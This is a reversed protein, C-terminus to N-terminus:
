NEKYVVPNGKFSVDIYGTMGLFEPTSLISFAKALKENMDESTGLKIYAGEVYLKYNVFNNIELKMHPFQEFLGKEILFKHVVKAGEITSGDEDQIVQGVVLKEVPVGEISLVQPSDISEKVGLVRGNEDIAYIGDEGQASFAIKREQIGISIKNPLKRKVKVSEIYMNELLVKEIKRTNIKFINTEPEIAASTLITEKSLLEIGSVNVEALNFEELTLGLTVLVTCLLILIIMTRKIVIIKRKRKLLSEKNNLIYNGYDEKHRKTM